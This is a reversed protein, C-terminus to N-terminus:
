NLKDTTNRRRRLPGVIGVLTITAANQDNGATATHATGRTKDAFGRQAGSRSQDGDSRRGADLIDDGSVIWRVQCKSQRLVLLAAHLVTRKRLQRVNKRSLSRDADSRSDSL